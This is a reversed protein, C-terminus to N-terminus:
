LSGHWASLEVFSVSFPFGSAMRLAFSVVLGPLGTGGEEPWWKVTVM